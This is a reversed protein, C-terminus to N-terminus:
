AALAKDSRESAAGGHMRFWERAGAEAARIAAEQDVRTAARDLVLDLAQRGHKADAEIHVAFFALDRASLGQGKLAEFLQGSTVGFKLEQGILLFAAGELWRGEALMRRGPAIPQPAAELAAVDGEDGGCARVFRLALATHRKEDRVVLGKDAKLFIGEEELLNELLVLRAETDPASDVLTAVTSCFLAAARATALAYRRLMAQPCRGTTLLRYFRTGDAPYREIAALLRREFEARPLLDTTSNM